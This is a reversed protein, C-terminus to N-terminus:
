TIRTKASVPPAPILPALAVVVPAEADRAEEAIDEDVVRPSRIIDDRWGDCDKAVDVDGVDAGAAPEDALRPTSSM